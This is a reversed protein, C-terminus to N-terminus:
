LEHRNKQQWIWNSAHGMQNKWLSLDSSTTLRPVTTRSTNSGDLICGSIIDTTKKKNSSASSQLRKFKSTRRTAAPPQYSTKGSIIFWKNIRKVKEEIDDIKPQNTSM